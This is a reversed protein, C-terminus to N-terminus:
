SARGPNQVVPKIRLRGEVGGARGNAGLVEVDLKAAQLSSKVADLAQYDPLVLDITLNREGYKMGNLKVTSPQSKLAPALRSLLPLMDAPGGGRAQLADISKQMQEYPRIAQTGFATRYIQHMEAQYRNHINRLRIWDVLDVIFAGLLWIAVLIAAPRLPKTLQAFQGGASFDAQLLNLAPVSTMEWFDHTDVVVPARLASSWADIDLMGPPRFVILNQPARNEAEAERMAAVLLPPPEATALMTFGSFAGTRVWLEDDVFAMSWANSQLPLALHAPCMSAVKIGAAGLTSLWEAIRERKTVAVALSGDPEHVYAFHLQEPEDLLQEELAYPLAQLIRSRSRTPLTAHTLLTEAAPTWLHVPLQRLHEPLQELGNAYGDGETGGNPVHWRLLSATTPWGRPIRLETRRIGAQALSSALREKLKM